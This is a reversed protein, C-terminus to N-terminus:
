EGASRLGSVGEKTTAFGGAGGFDIVRTGAVRAVKRRAAANGELQARIQDEVSLTETEQGPLQRRLVSQDGIASFGARAQAETIGEEALRLGTETALDLGAASRATSGIEAAAVQKELLPLARKPDTFYMFSDTIMGGFHEAAYTAVGSYSEGVIRRRLDLRDSLESVSVNAGIFDAYDSPQDYFGKPLGFSRLVQQYGAETSLYEAPTLIPLGAKKRAENGAFRQKWTDTDQIKLWILDESFGQELYGWLSNALTALGYEKLLSELANFADENAGSTNIIAM